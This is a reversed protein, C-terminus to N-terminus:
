FWWYFNKENQKRFNKIELNRRQVLHPITDIRHENLLKSFLQEQFPTLNKLIELYDYEILNEKRKTLVFSEGLYERFLEKFLYDISNYKYLVKKEEEKSLNGSVLQALYNDCIKILSIITKTKNNKM